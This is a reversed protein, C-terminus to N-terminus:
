GEAPPVNAAVRSSRALKGDYIRFLFDYIVLEHRNGSSRMLRNIHMHAYSGILDDLPLALKGHNAMARLKEVSDQVSCSRQRLIERVAALTDDPRSNPDFLAEITAREKRFRDGLEKRASGGSAPGRQFADRLREMTSRKQEGEFGFDTLLFDIGLLGARLRFDVGKDGRLLEVIRLVAESDAFFIQEAALMSEPGGYREIEREYTDFQIKWLQGSLLLPHFTARILPLVDQQLREPIGHVRIRFHFHPDAYRIFFWQSAAGSAVASRVWPGIEAALIEDLTTEGGYIKVYLWEGGPAHVRFSRAVELVRDNQRTNRHRESLQAVPRVMPVNLEHFFHGEPSSVCLQEPTPYMELVIAQQKRKLVHVFADVSLPNELDVALANDIEQLVIWRPLGRKRRLEQIACFTTSRERSNLSKIENANLRWRALALVVRGCTLRPLHDLSELPGWSFGPVSVGGQHQLCCLLRYLSPLKQNMFGHANTLRPIIRRDLKRSRLIIRSGQVAVMLDTIPLQRELPAGSRGLYIIEYERLVPRCLVNGIRGEPLYVIEAFIADPDHREEERLQRRVCQELDPDAHCFRGFFRAGDPGVGGKLVLEFNGRAVADPGSAVLVANLAFSDPFRAADQEAPIDNLDLALAMEGRGDRVAEFFKKFLSGQFKPVHGSGPRDAGAIPLGEAGIAGFGVGIEEDLAEILPVWALEYRALFTERFRKLEEPESTYGLRGLIEAGRILEDLVPKPITASRVPKILDIQYLKAPEVKAPLTELRSTIAQYEEPSIGVGKQDIERLKDSAWRLTAVVSTADPLEDLQAILDDVPSPGTVVPSLSSVLVQQEIIEQIYEEAEERSITSDCTANLVCDALESVSAGRGARELVRNVYEDAEVRVLHHSRNTGAFRSEVYHLADGVRHLSSNPWYRLQVRLTSDRTLCSTLAFLYDFDLRSCPRYEERSSLNLRIQDDPEIRGVSCGSFLGFPTSRTCMREFYRVLAREAQLGKKSDPDRKWHEIGPHLSPSAVFLAHVIEPRDLFSRLRARLLVIDSQWAADFINHDSAQFVRAATLGDAWAIMEEAPLLPTRFVFFDLFSFQPENTPKAM